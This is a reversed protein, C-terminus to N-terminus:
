GVESAMFQNQKNKFTVYISDCLMYKKTEPKMRNIYCKPSKDM